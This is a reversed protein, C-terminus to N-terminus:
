FTKNRFVFRNLRSMEFPLLDQGSAAISGNANKCNRDESRTFSLNCFTYKQEPYQKPRSSKHFQFLVLGPQVDSDPLPKIYITLM